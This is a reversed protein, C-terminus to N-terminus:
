VQKWRSFQLDSCYFTISKEDPFNYIFFILDFIIFNGNLIILKKSKKDPFNCTFIISNKVLWILRKVLWILRKVLWILHNVQKWGSFRLDHYNFTKSILDFTKSTKMRFIALWSSETITDRFNWLRPPRRRRTRLRRWKWNKLKKWFTM